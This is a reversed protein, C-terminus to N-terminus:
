WDIFYPPDNNIERPLVTIKTYYANTLLGDSLVIKFYYDGARVSDNLDFYIKNAHNDFQAFSDILSTDIKVRIEDGEDDIM